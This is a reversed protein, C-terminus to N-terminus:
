QIDDDTVTFTCMHEYGTSAENSSSTWNNGDAIEKTVSFGPDTELSLRSIYQECEPNADNLEDDFEFIVEVAGPALVLSDTFTFGGSGDTTFVILTHSSQNSVTKSWSSYASCSYLSVALLIATYVSYITKM